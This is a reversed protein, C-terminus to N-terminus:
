TEDLRTVATLVGLLDDEALFRQSYLLEACAPDIEGMTAQLIDSRLEGLRMNTAPNSAWRPLRWKTALYGVVRPGDFLIRM